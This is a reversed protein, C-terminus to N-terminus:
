GAQYQHVWFAPQGDFGVSYTLGAGAALSKTCHSCRRRFCKPGTKQRDTGLCWLADEELNLTKLFQGQNRVIETSLRCACLRNVRQKEHLTQLRQCLSTVEELQTINLRITQDDLVLSGGDVNAREDYVVNARFVLRPAIIGSSTYVSTELILREYM